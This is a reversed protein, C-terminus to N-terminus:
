AILQKVSSGNCTLTTEWCPVLWIWCKKMVKEAGSDLKQVKWTRFKSFEFNLVNWSGHSGHVHYALRRARNHFFCCSSVQLWKGWRITIYFHTHFITIKSWYRAKDRFRHLIPGCNSHCIFLFEHTIYHKQLNKSPKLPNTKSFGFGFRTETKCVGMVTICTTICHMYVNKRFVSYAQHSYTITHHM